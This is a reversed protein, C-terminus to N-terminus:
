SFAMSNSGFIVFSDDLNVFESSIKILKQVIRQADAFTLGTDEKM